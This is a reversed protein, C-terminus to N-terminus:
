PFLDEVRISFGPLVDGGDITEDSGLTVSGEGLRYVVISRRRPYVVWVLPTGSAAYEALKEELLKPYDTPSYVEIALDPVLRLFKEQEEPPPLRSARVFAVDPFLTTSRGPFLRFGTEAFVAGLARAAVFPQLRACFEVTVRGHTGGAGPMRYLEGDILAFRYPERRMEWLEEVTVPKTMTAIM